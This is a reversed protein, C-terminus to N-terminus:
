RQEEGENAALVAEDLRVLVPGRRRVAREVAAPVDALREPAEVGAGMAAALGSFDPPAPTVAVPEIGRAIMDDRIQGLAENNWLVVVLPLGLEAATVIEQATYLLGGDGVIAVAPADPDAVAAGVAAPVAYGLTGFGSPHLWRRPARMPVVQTGTYALQTMDSYVRANEPIGAFVANLVRTHWGRYLPAAAAALARLERVDAEAGSDEREPLQELIRDLAWAADARLCLADPYDGPLHSPDVDIRVLRGKLPLVDVTIDTSALETGVALVVDRDALWERVAVRKLAQGACLPDDDPVIGKGAVTSLVPASLRGALTRVQESAGAAGGGVIVAPREAGALLRVAEALAGAPPAEVAPRVPPVPRWGDGVEEALVDIPVELYVPRPRGSTLAGWAQALLDPLEDVSGARLALGTIPEAILRQDKCEHLHGRGRGLTHSATVSALVFMPVSDAYAQGIGTAANTLGPGSIVCCVAPRGTARAYGDAMFAAGQEHRPLVIRFGQGALGRFYELTHVGPIGFLTDAGYHRLTAMVAAGTRM